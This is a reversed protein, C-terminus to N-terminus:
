TPLITRNVDQVIFQESEFNALVKSPISDKGAVTGGFIDSPCKNKGKQM